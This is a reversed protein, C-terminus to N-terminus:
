KLINRILGDKNQSPYVTLNEGFAYLGLSETNKHWGQLHRFGLIKQRIKHMNAFYIAGNNAWQIASSQGQSLKQEEGLREEDQIKYWSYSNWALVFCDAMVDIWNRTHRLFHWLMTNVCSSNFM